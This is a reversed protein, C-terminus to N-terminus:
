SKLKLHICAPKFGLKLFFKQSRVNFLHIGAQYIDANLGKIDELLKRHVSLRAEKHLSERIGIWGIQMVERGACDKDKYTFLSAVNENDILYAARYVANKMAHELADRFLKTLGDGLYSKWREIFTHEFDTRILEIPAEIKRIHHAHPGLELRNKAALDNASAIFGLQAFFQEPMM